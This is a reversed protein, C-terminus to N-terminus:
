ITTTIKVGYHDTGPVYIRQPETCIQNKQTLFGDLHLPYLKAVLREQLSIGRYTTEQPAQYRLNRAAAMISLEQQQKIFQQGIIKRSLKANLYPLIFAFVRDAMTFEQSRDIPGLTNWDGGIIVADPDLEKVMVAVTAQVAEHYDRTIPINTFPNAHISGVIIEQLTNYNLLHLLPADWTAAYQDGANPHILPRTYPRILRTEKRNWPLPYATISGIPSALNKAYPHAFYNYQFTKLSRLFAQTAPHNLHVDLLSLIPSKLEKIIKPVETTLCDPKGYTNLTFATIETSM